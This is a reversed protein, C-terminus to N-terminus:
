ETMKLEGDHVYLEYVTGTQRDTLTVCDMGGIGDGATMKLQGNEAFLRYVRGTQRDALLLVDKDTGSPISVTVAESGDYVAEVAGTFTLKHPNPLRLGNVTRLVEADVWRQLNFYDGSELGM